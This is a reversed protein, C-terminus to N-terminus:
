WRHLFVRALFLFTKVLNALSGELIEFVAYIGLTDFFCDLSDFFLFFSFSIHKFLMMFLYKVLLHPLAHLHLIFDLVSMNMSRAFLVSIHSRASTVVM